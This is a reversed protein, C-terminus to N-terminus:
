SYRRRASAVASQIEFLPQRSTEWARCPHADGIARSPPDTHHHREGNITVTARRPYQM